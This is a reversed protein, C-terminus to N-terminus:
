SEVEDLEPAMDHVAGAYLDCCPVKISNLKKTTIGIAVAIDDLETLLEPTIANHNVHLEIREAASLLLQKLGNIMLGAELISTLSGDVLGKDLPVAAAPTPPKSNESDAHKHQQGHDHGCGVVCEVLKGRTHHKTKKGGKEKGPDGNTTSGDSTDHGHKTKQKLTLM